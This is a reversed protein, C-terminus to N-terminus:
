AFTQIKHRVLQFITIGISVGVLLLGMGQAPEYLGAATASIVLGVISVLMLNETRLWIIGLVIGWIVVLTLDGMIANLPALSASFPNTFAGCMFDSATHDTKEFCLDGFAM